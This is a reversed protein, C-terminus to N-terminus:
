NRTVLLEALTVEFVIESKHGSVWMIHRAEFECRDLITVSTARISHNTYERSLKTQKSIAKMKGGLTNVGAPQDDYWTADTEDCQKKPNLSKVQNRDRQRLIVLQVQMQLLLLLLPMTHM